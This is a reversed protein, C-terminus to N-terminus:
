GIHLGFGFRCQNKQHNLMGSLVFSFPLPHLRKEFSGAVTWNTDILGRYMVNAKPIDVQYALSVCSDQMKSSYEYDVGVQVNDNGKHYYSAHWGATNMQAAATWKDANFRGALSLVAAEQGQGYHYILEAGLDLNKTM